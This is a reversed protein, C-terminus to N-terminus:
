HEQANTLIVLSEWGNEDAIRRFKRWWAHHRKVDDDTTRVSEIVYGSARYEALDHFVDGIASLDRRTGTPMPLQYIGYGCNVAWAAAEAFGNAGFDLLDFSFLVIHKSRLDTM